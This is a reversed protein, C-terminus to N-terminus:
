LSRQIEFIKRLKRIGISEHGTPPCRLKYLPVRLKIKDNDHLYLSLRSRVNAYLNNVYKTLPPARGSEIDADSPRAPRFPVTDSISLLATKTQASAGSVAQTAGSAEQPQGSNAAQTTAGSAEQPQGSAAQTAGGEKTQGSAAQTAGSAAQPQDVKQRKPPSVM